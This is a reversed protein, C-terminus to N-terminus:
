NSGYAEAAVYYNYFATLAAKEDAQDRSALVARVYTLASVDIDCIVAGNASFAVRYSKDLNNAAIDPIEVSYQRGGLSTVKCATGDVTATVTKASKLRVLVHLTTREAFTDYYSVSDVLSADYKNWVTQYDKLAQATTPTLSETAAPMEAYGGAGVTFGHLRALYPQIYRGYDRVAAIMAQLKTDTQYTKQAIDLYEKVSTTLTATKTQSDKTYHFVAAVPEAMEISYVPCNFTRKDEDIGADTFPIDYSRGHITFVMHAGSADFNEPLAVYFRFNLTGDLVLAAGIIKPETLVAITVTVCVPATNNHDADGVVEYWVYYTGADTKAPISTTYTQTAETATGLAYQMEGGTAEGATVLEQAQGNYILNKAKPAKTVTANPKVEVEVITVDSANKDATEAYRVKYTGATLGTIETQNEGVAIWSTEGDKQYEMADTVNSIKGDAATSSSAKTATLGTPAEQNEKVGVVVTAETSANKDATEAYRVKYTGATLGTIETQNEGVANWSTEGNKQYEMADTVGSITGDAATSSSAKTATLDTPTAQTAKATPATLTIEANATPTGSVTIQTDSNRTVSIGNSGAVSYDTPFYYGANATYVVPTMAGSLETQTDAGSDENRTMNGGATVTVKYVITYAASAIKSNEMGSKVAIAKITVSKSVSIADTYKSSETTPDTGDTTYYITANETECAITVSQAVSYKGAAPTFSPAAVPAPKFAAYVTVNGAPMSFTYDTKPINVPEDSGVQYTLTDLVYNTEPSVKLTIPTGEQSRSVPSTVTGGTGTVNVTITCITGCKVLTKNKVATLDDATLTGTYFGDESDTLAKGEKVTLATYSDAKLSDDNDSFDVTLTTGSSTKGSGGGIGMANSGGTAEVKGGNINITGGAGYYGGGIGASSYGGKTSIKGGYITITGATKNTGGIGANNSDPSTIVLSGMEDAETSYACINLTAGSNVEIGKPITLTAGDTLVLTVQNSVTVRTNITVNGLVAVVPTKSGTWKELESSIPTYNTTNSVTNGTPDIYTIPIKEFKASLTVNDAPMIFKNNNVDVTGGGDKTVSVSNEVYRYGAGNTVIIDVSDNEVPNNYPFGDKWATVMGDKDTYNKIRYRTKGGLILKSPGDPASTVQENNETNLLSSGEAIIFNGYYNGENIIADTKNKLDITITPSATSTEYNGIGYEKATIYGGNLNICSESANEDSAGLGISASYKYASSSEGNRSGEATVTGGEITIKTANKGNYGSGIGAGGYSGTATVTGGSINITGGRSFQGGGIGAGGGTSSNYKTGTTTVRANGSITIDYEGGANNWGRGSGIGAAGGGVGFDGDIVTVNANKGIEITCKSDLGSVNATAGCGIGAGGDNNTATVSGGYIKVDAELACSGSGIGAGGSSGTANITGGYITITGSNGGKQSSQSQGPIHRKGGGGIGAGGNDGTATVDGGYITITGGSGRSDSNTDTTSDAGRSGGGIGAAYKGTATIIGGYITVTGGEGHYGSGIGAGGVYVGGSGSYSGKATITGGYINITGCSAGGGIGATGTAPYSAINLIGSDGSQGYINLTNNKLVTIGQAIRKDYLYKNFTMTCGDCLILNVTGKVTVRNSMEVDSNVVYWTTEGDTGWTISTSTVPTASATETRETVTYSSEDWDRRIYTVSVLEADTVVIEYTVGGVTVKMWETTSFTRHATVVWEGTANSASFLGPNSVEVTEVEGPLGLASLIESMAVSTDGPLVYELGDRTFEVTYGSEAHAPTFLGFVLALYVLASLILRKRM